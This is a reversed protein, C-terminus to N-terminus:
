EIWISELIELIKGDLAAGDQVLDNLNAKLYDIAMERSTEPILSIMETCFGVLAAEDLSDLHDSLHRAETFDIFLLEGSDKYILPQVDLTVIRAGLMGVMTEVVSKIAHNQAQGRNVNQISSTTSDEGDMTSVMVPSLAIVVRGDEHTYLNPSGLCKEVHPVHSNEMLKLIKCENEVSARSRKWSVKIAINTSKNGETHSKKVGEVSPLANGNKTPLTSFSFVAGSGGSFCPYMDITQM